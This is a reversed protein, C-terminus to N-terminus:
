SNVRPREFSTIQIAPPIISKPDLDEEELMKDLSSAVEQTEPSASSAFTQAPIALEGNTAHSRSALVKPLTVTIRTGKGPESSIYIKGGLYSVRERMGRLGHTSNNALRGAAIGIGNDRVTLMVNDSNDDLIVDVQTAKAHKAVNNLAEQVMRFLIINLQPSYSLEEDPLSAHCHIGTYNEFDSAQEAIATKVGFIDLKDPRLGNQIRRTTATISNLLTKVQAIRGTLKSDGTIKQFVIALHMNLATLASGLDDHLERAIIRKEEERTAEIHGILESVEATRAAVLAELQLEHARLADEARKRETIDTGIGVIGLITGDESLWPAKTAYFTRIGDKCHITEEFAQAKGTNYVLQDDKTIVAADEIRSFLDENRKGLAESRDKNLLHLLAPNAFVLHGDRDKVFIADTTSDSVIRLWANTKALAAEGRRRVDVEHNLLAAARAFLIFLVASDALMVMPPVIDREYLGHHAGWEAILNLFILLALTKPLLRRLLHGGPADSVFVAMLPHTPRAYLIGAALSLFLIPAQITAFQVLPLNTNIIARYLYACLFVAMIFGMGIACYESVYRGRRTASDLWLLSMGALLFCAANLPNMLATTHITADLHLLSLVHNILQEIQTYFVLSLLSIVIIGFASIRAILIRIESNKLTDVEAPARQLWLSLGAFFLCVISGSKLAIIYNSLTEYFPQNVIRAILVFIGILMFSLAVMSTIWHTTVSKKATHM